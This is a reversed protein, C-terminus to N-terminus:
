IIHKEIRLQILVDNDVDKGLNVSTLHVAQKILRNESPFADM